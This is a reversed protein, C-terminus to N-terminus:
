YICIRPMVHSPPTLSVYSTLGFARCVDVVHELCCLQGNINTESPTIEISGNDEGDFSLKINVGTPAFHNNRECLIDAIHTWMKSSLNKCMNNHLNIPPSGGPNFM